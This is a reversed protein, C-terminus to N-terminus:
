YEVKVLGTVMRAPIYNRVGEAMTYGPGLPGFASATNLARNNFVNTGNVQLTLKGHSGVRREHSTMLDWTGYPDMWPNIPSNGARQGIHHYGGGIKWGKLDERQFEYTTWVNSVLHPIWAQWGGGGALVIHSYSYNTNM